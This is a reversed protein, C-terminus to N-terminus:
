DPVKVQDPHAEQWESIAGAAEEVAYLLEESAGKDEAAGRYRLVADVACADQARIIFVPEDSENLPVGPEGHVVDGHEATIEGYKRDYAMEMREFFNLRM